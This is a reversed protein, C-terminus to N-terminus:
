LKEAPLNERTFIYVGVLPVGSENKSSLITFKGLGYAVKRFTEHLSNQIRNIRFPKREMGRCLPSANLHPRPYILTGDQGRIARRAGRIRMNGAGRNGSARIRGARNLM